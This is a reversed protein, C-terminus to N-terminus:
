EGVHAALKDVLSQHYRIGQQQMREVTGKFSRILGKQKAKLLLGLTGAVKLGMFEAARRGIREDIIVVDAEYQCALLLTQKEGHDLELLLAHHVDAIDPIVKIWPLASLDPVMIAGGQACEDVVAQAVCVEHFLQPFIDLAGASCLAIFPTTNSFVRM